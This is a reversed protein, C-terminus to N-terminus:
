EKGNKNMRGGVYGIICIILMEFYDPSLGGFHVGGATLILATILLIVESRVRMGM